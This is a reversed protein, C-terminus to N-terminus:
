RLPTSESASTVALFRTFQEPHPSAVRLWDHAHVQEILLAAQEDTGYGGGPVGSSARVVIVSLPPLGNANCFDRIPNLYIGMGQNSVGIRPAIDGYAPKDGRSAAVVLLHWLRTIQDPTTM